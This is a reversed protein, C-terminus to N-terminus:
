ARGAVQVNTPSAPMCPHRAPPVLGPGMSVMKRQTEHDPGCLRLSVVRDSVALCLPPPRDGVQGMHVCLFCFPPGERGAGSWLHVGGDAEGGGPGADQM